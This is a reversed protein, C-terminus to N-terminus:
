KNWDSITSLIHSALGAQRGDKGALQEGSEALEVVSDLKQEFKRWADRFAVLQGAFPSAPALLERQESGLKLFRATIDQYQALDLIGSFAVLAQSTNQCWSEHEQVSTWNTEHGKYESGLLETAMPELKELSRDEANLGSLAELIFPVDTAKPRKRNLTYLRLRSRVSRKAIWRKPWWAMLALDWDETLRGGDAKSVEPKFLGSLKDWHSQRLEGHNRMLQLQAMAASDNGRHALGVPVQPAQLLVAALRGVARYLDFSAAGLNLDFIKEIPFV